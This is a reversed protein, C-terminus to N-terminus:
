RLLSRIESGSRTGVDSSRIWPQATRRRPLLRMAPTRIPASYPSVQAFSEHSGPWVIEIQGRQAEDIINEGTALSRRSALGLPRAAPGV